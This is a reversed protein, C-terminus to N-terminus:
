VKIEFVVDHARPLRFVLRFGLRLRWGFGASHSLRLGLTGAWFSTWPQVLSGEEAEWELRALRPLPLAMTLFSGVWFPSDLGPEGMGTPSTNPFGTHLTQQVSHELSTSARPPMSNGSPLLRQFFDTVSGLLGASISCSRGSLTRFGTGMTSFSSATWDSGFPESSM